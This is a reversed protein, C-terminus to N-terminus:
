SLYTGVQTPLFYLYTGVQTPLYSPYIPVQTPLNLYIPRQTPLSPLYTLIFLYRSQYIIIFLYRTLYTPKYQLYSHIANNGPDIELETELEFHSEPRIRKELYEYIRIASELESLCIQFSPFLTLSAGSVISCVHQSHM